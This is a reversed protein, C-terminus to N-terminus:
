QGPSRVRSRLLHLHIDNFGPNAPANQLSPNMLTGNIHDLGLQHGMEHAAVRAVLGADAPPVDNNLRDRDTEQFVWCADSGVAVAANSVVGWSVGGTGGESQPDDDSNDLYQFAAGLYAVWFDDREAAAPTDQQMHNTTLTQGNGNALFVLNNQNNAAATGGDALPLIYADAYPAAMGGFDVLQPLIGEDDDDRIEVPINHGAVTVTGAAPNVGGVNMVEGAVTLTGGVHGANLAGGTVNVTFTNGALATVTGTADPPPPPPGPPGQLTFPLNIVGTHRVFDAGNGHIPSITVMGGGSGIDVRGNEFRGRAGPLHTSGDNLAAAVVAETTGNRIETLTTVIRNHDAAPPVPVQVMSDSEVHLVRWVTLVDGAYHDRERIERQVATGTVHENTIRQKDNNSAGAATDDNILDGLFDRDGNGVVRFNDGPHMTVQFQFTEEKADFSHTLIGGAEGDFQGAQAPATGRNDEAGGENDIPAAAKTPDDTDFSEFYVNVAEIPEVTLTVHVDVHDRPDAEVAGGVSRAGPFVRDSGPDVAAPWNPDADLVNDDNVSNNRGVWEISDIGIITITAEDKCDDVKDYVLRLKTGRQATHAVIGEVWRRIVLADGEVTFDGPVDLDTGLAYETDKDDQEWVKINAAGTPAELKIKGESLASPRLKLDIKIMEDEGSVDTDTTGTDYHEDQDDNDLNVFTQVGVTLKNAEPIEAEGADIVPPKHLVIEAKMVTLKHKKDPFSFWLIDPWFNFEAYGHAIKGGPLTVEVDIEQDDIDDSPDTGSPRIDTTQANPPVFEVRNPNGTGSWSYASGLPTGDPAEDPIVLAKLSKSCPDEGPQRIQLYKPPDKGLDTGDDERILVGVISVDREAHALV